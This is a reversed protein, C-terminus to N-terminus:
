NIKVMSGKINVIGDSKIDLMAGSKLTLTGTAEVNVQVSKLKLSKASSVEIDGKGNLKVTQTQSKITVENKSGGAITVSNNGSSDTITITDQKDGIEVRHGKKTKIVIQGDSDDDNFEIEHGARSRFKRINNKENAKPSKAKDNWLAGIVYPESMEGLHFAVLVEDGVEPVFLSGRDKGAMLTAIRVWDTENNAERVPFTLKVRALGEPDKNNTVIGIMVGEIKGSTRGPSDVFDLDLNM